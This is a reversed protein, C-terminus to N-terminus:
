MDIQIEVCPLIISCLPFFFASSRTPGTLGSVFQGAIQIQVEEQGGGGGTHNGDDGAM